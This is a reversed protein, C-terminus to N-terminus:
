NALDILGTDTAVSQQSLLAWGTAGSWMLMATDGDDVFDLDAFGLADTVALIGNGGDIDNIIIKLQGIVTGDALTSAVNTGSTALLTLATTIGVATQIGDTINEVSNSFGIFSPLNNILNTVSIKKNIPTGTPDDIVHLLDAGAVGTSLDTLATIKKDAM